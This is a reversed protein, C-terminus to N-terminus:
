CLHAAIRQHIEQFKDIGEGLSTGGGIRRAQGFLDDPNMTDQSGSIDSMRDSTGDGTGVVALRAGSEVDVDIDKEGDVV